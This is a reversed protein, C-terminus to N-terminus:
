RRPRRNRTTSRNANKEEVFKSGPGPTLIGVGPVAAKEGRRLKRLLDHVFTDLQDAAKAPSVSSTKALQTIVRNM